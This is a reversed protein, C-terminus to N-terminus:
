GVKCYKKTTTNNRVNNAQQKTNSPIIISSNSHSVRSNRHVQSLMQLDTYTVLLSQNIKIRNKPSFNLASCLSGNVVCGIEAQGGTHGKWIFLCTSYHMSVVSERAWKVVSRVRESFDFCLVGCKKLLGHFTKSFKFDGRPSLNTYRRHTMLVTRFLTESMGLSNKKYRM